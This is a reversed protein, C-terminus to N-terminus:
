SPRHVLVVLLQQARHVHPRQKEGADVFDVVIAGPLTRPAGFRIADVRPVHQDLEEFPDALAQRNEHHVVDRVLVDHGRLKFLKARHDTRELKGVLWRVLVVVLIYGVGERRAHHAGADWEDM